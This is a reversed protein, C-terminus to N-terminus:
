DAVYEILAEQVLSKVSKDRKKARTELNRLMSRDLRIVFSIDKSKEGRAIMAKKGANCRSCLTQLNDLETPGNDFYPIIHDAELRVTKGDLYKKGAEHGCMQCTYNDRMFVETRLRLSVSRDDSSDKTRETTYMVYGEPKFSYPIQWGEDERLERLRRPWGDQNTAARFQDKTVVHGLNDYLLDLIIQHATGRSTKPREDKM